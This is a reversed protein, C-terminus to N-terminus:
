EGAKAMAYSNRMEARALSSGRIAEFWADEVCKAARRPSPEYGSCAGARSIDYGDATMSWFWQGQSPGADFRYIRGVAGKYVPSFASYDAENEEWTQQWKLALRISADALADGAAAQAHAAM